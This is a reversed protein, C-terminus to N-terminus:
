DWPLSEPIQGNFAGPLVLNLRAAFQTGTRTFEVSRVLFTYESYVMAGPADLTVFTNPTWLTGNVDRWTNVTTSYSVASGFMRGIKSQAAVKIEGQAVDNAKFTFPRIVNPLRENKVTHKDGELGIVTTEIATIHSYYSQPKFVPEVSLLPTSGQTLRSVPNGTDISRTFLLEGRQTSATIVGRQQALKALFSFVKKDSDLSVRDFAPGEDTEFRVSLGFLEAVIIAIEKLTQNNFELPLASAPATCDSLVGPLSYGTVDITRQDNDLSPLSDVLTGTFLTDAGVNVILDRFSFPRFTKKFDQKDPEFPASFRISDMADISRTIIVTSWFRFRQGDILISVEDGTSPTVPLANLPSGPLLPIILTTSEVLPEIAGPNARAIRQSESDIGYVKRAIISFTDGTKVSYTSSLKV